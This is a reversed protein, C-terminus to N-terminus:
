FSALVGFKFMRGRPDGYPSYGAYARYIDEALFLHSLPTELSVSPPPRTNLLNEIGFRFILPARPAQGKAPWRVASTLDLYLQSPVHPGSTPLTLGPLFRTLQQLSATEALSAPTAAYAEYGSFFRGNLTTQWPGDSWTAGVQGRWALPGDVFGVLDYSPRTPDDKRRFSPTWTTKLYLRLRGGRLPHDYTASLDIFQQNSRSNQLSSADISLIQGATYGKAADASTLPARVVRDPYVAEHDVFYQYADLAFNSIEGRSHLLNYDISVRLGEVLAPSAVAGISFTQSHAARLGTSGGGAVAVSYVGTQLGGRQPDQLGSQVTNSYPRIQEGTPPMYGNAFSARFTLGPRPTIKAGATVSVINGGNTIYDPTGASVGNISGILGGVVSGDAIGLFAPETTSYRDYRVALQAELGRLPALGGETSTLPALLEAFASSVHRTQGFQRYTTVAAPITVARTPSVTVQYTPTRILSFSGPNTEKRYEGTFTMALPGGALQAIPGGLRLNLDSLRDNQKLFGDGQLGATALQAAIAAAGQSVDLDSAYFMPQPLTLRTSARGLSGDLAMAWGGGLRATVGLTVRETMTANQALASLGPTSFTMYVSQNFPNSAQYSGLQNSATDILATTARGEDYLWLVNAFAEVRSGLEQWLSASLARSRTPTVLSAAAGQGDSSLTLDTRGANARLIAVGGDSFAPSGAPLFTQSAGLVGGGLAAKFTLPQTPDTAYFNVGPAAVIDGGPFLKARALREDQAFRRDGMDLGNDESLGGLIMLRTHGNFGELGIQGHIAYRGADGHESVGSDVGLQVGEFDHKLVINVVGGAAGPGFLAGATADLVEIRDVGGVPLGSLDSQVFQEPSPVSPLRRGDILVLTQSAGLGHLDIQSRATAYNAQPSQALSGMQANASLANHLLDSMSAPQLQDILESDMVRYPQIDDEHRRLDANITRRGTILVEAVATVDEPPAPRAKIADSHRAPRIVFSGNALAEFELGSGALLAKLAAQPTAAGRVPPAPKGTMISRDYLLSIHTARALRELSTSLDGPPIDAVQARAFTPLCLGVVV